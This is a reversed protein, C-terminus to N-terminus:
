TVGLYTLIALVRRHESESPSLGLKAFINSLYKEVAGESVVLKAAIAANSSGEAM